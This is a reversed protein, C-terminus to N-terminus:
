CRRHMRRFVHRKSAPPKAFKYRKNRKIPELLKKEMRCIREKLIKQVIEEGDTHATELDEVLMTEAPYGSQMSRPNTDSLDRPDCKWEELCADLDQIVKEDKARRYASNENHDADRRRTETLHQLTKKATTVKNVTLCQNKVMALNNTIGIWGGKIKSGKNMTMEITQDSPLCAYPRGTLSFAFNGEMMWRTEEDGLSRMTSWYLPLYRAYHISDYIAMWPLMRRLSSLYGERDCIRLSHNNLLLIEVMSM